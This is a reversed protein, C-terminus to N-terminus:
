WRHAWSRVLRSFKVSPCRPDPKGSEEPSNRHRKWSDALYKAGANTNGNRWQKAFSPGLTYVTQALKKREDGFYGLDGDRVLSISM